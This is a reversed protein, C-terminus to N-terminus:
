RDARPDYGADGALTWSVPHPVCYALVVVGDLPTGTQADVIQGKWPGDAHAPCAAALKGLGLLVLVILSRRLRM